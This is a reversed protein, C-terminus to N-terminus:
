LDSGKYVAVVGVIAWIILLVINNLLDKGEIIQILAAVVLLFCVIVIGRILKKM